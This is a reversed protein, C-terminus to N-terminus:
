EVVVEPCKRGALDEHKRWLKMRFGRPCANCIVATGDGRDILGKNGCVTCISYTGAKHQVLEEKRGEDIERCIACSCQSKWEPAEWVEM